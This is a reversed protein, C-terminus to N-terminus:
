FLCIKIKLIEYQNNLKRLLVAKEKRKNSTSISLNTNVTNSFFCQIKFKLHTKRLFQNQM